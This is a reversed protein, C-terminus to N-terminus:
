PGVTRWARPSEADPPPDYLQGRVITLSTQGTLLGSRRDISGSHEVQHVYYERGDYQARTGIRIEPRLLNLRLTGSVTSPSNRYLRYLSDTREVISDLPTTREGTLGNAPTLPSLGDVVDLLRVGHRAVDSSLPRAGTGSFEFAPVRGGSAGWLALSATPSFIPGRASFLTFRESGSRGLDEDSIESPDVYHLDLGFWEDSEPDVEFFPLNRFVVTPAVGYGDLYAGFTQGLDLKNGSGIPRLDYFWETFPTVFLSRLYPDLKQAAEPVYTGLQVVSGNFVNSELALLAGLSSAGYSVPAHFWGDDGGVLISLLDFAAQSPPGQQGSHILDVLAGFRAPDILGPLVPAALQLHPNSLVDHVEFAKGFDRGSLRGTWETAATRPDTRATRRSGDVLGFSLLDRSRRMTELVGIGFWDDDSLKLVDVAAPDVSVSWQGSPAAVSKVTSFDM